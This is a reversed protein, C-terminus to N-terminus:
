KVKDFRYLLIDEDYDTEKFDDGMIDTFVDPTGSMVQYIYIRDAARFRDSIDTDDNSVVHVASGARGRGFYYEEFGDANARNANIAIVAEGNMLGEDDSVADCVHGYTNDFPASVEDKVDYYYNGSGLYVMIFIVTTGYSIILPVDLKDSIRDLVESLFVSVSILAAPLVSLFYRLVFIGARTNIHASYIYDGIVFFLPMCALGFRVLREDFDRGDNLFSDLMLLFAVIMSLILLIFILEDKSVIYRLAQPISAFTPTKPWFDNLDMTRNMFMLILWPFLLAGAILYSIIFKKGVAKKIFLVADLIFLYAITLCGFYHSYALGTMSIGLLIVNKMSEQGAEKLRVFYRWLVLSTFLLWFAHVRFTLGCKHMIVSSICCLVAMLIGAKENRYEKAAKIMIVISLTTLLVTLLRLWGEGYPVVRYWAAAILPWLPLNTVESTLYYRIIQSWPNKKVIFGIQSVEDLSLYQRGMFRLSFVLQILILITCIIYFHNKSLFEATRKRM